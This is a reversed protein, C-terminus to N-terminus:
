DTLPPPAGSKEALIRQVRFRPRKQSDTPRIWDRGFIKAFRFTAITKFGASRFAKWSPRNMIDICAIAGRYGRSACTELAAGLVAPMLGLGRFEPLTFAKYFYALQEDFELKLKGNLAPPFPSIWLYSVISEGSLAGVAEIGAAIAQDIDEPNEDILIAQRSIEEANLPRIELTVANGFAPRWREFDVWVCRIARFHFVKSFFGYVVVGPIARIGLYRLRSVGRLFLSKSPSESSSKKNM